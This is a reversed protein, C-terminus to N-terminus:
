QTFRRIADMVKADGPQLELAADWVSRAQEQEGLVWLVEGLHAAIEADASQDAARQLYPLSEKVRGMRYLVWGMSDQIYYDDPRQELAQKILALAEEYRGTRDALTYGLANLAQVHNPHDQLVLRLDNELIELRDLKEGVMARAYLLETNRPFSGVAVDYVDLAAQYDEADTLLEGDVLFIRVEDGRNSTRIGHLHERAAELRGLMAMVVSARIQADLYYNGRNVKLYYDLASPLRETAEHVQGLYYRVSPLRSRRQQLVLLRQEAAELQETQILILALAYIVDNDEPRQQELVKYQEIAADYQKANILLRAYTARTKDDDPDADLMQQFLALAAETKGQARLVQAYTQRAAHNDPEDKVLQALIHAAKDTDQARLALNALVLKATADLDQKDALAAEMIALAHARDRERGLLVFIEQYAITKPEPATELLTRISAIAEADDGSRVLMTAVAREAARDHPASQQWLRAAELAAANNKAFMAIRMARRAVSPEQRQRAVEMYKDVSMELDGRHGAFEAVLLNYFDETTYAPLDPRVVDAAATGAEGGVAASDHSPQQACALVLLCSGLAMGRRLCRSLRIKTMTLM